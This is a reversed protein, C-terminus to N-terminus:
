LIVAAAAFFCGRDGLLAKAANGAHKASESYERANQSKIVSVVCKATEFCKGRMKRKIASEVHKATKFCKWFETAVRRLAVCRRRSAATPKDCDTKAAAIKFIEKMKFIIKM